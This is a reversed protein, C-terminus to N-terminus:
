GLWVLWCTSDTPSATWLWGLNERSSPRSAKGRPHQGGGDGLQRLDQKTGEKIHVRNLWSM